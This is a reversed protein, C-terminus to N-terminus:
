HIKKGKRVCIQKNNSLLHRYLKTPKTLIHGEAEPSTLVCNNHVELLLFDDAALSNLCLPTRVPVLGMM